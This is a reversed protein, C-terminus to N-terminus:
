GSYSSALCLPPSTIKKSAFTRSTKKKRRKKKKKGKKKLSIKKRKHCDQCDLSQHPNVISVKKKLTKQIVKELNLGEASDEEFSAYSSMILALSFFSIIVLIYTLRKM